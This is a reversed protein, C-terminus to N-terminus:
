RRIAPHLRIRTGPRAQSIRAVDAECVVAIVPYGGTPPHNALHVIPQGSAPVQVSGLHIGETPLQRDTAHDLRAGLLRTAIRDTDGGVTWLTASLLQRAEATFWDHRPGWSFQCDLVANPSCTETFVDSPVAHDGYSNGIPLRDGPKLPNPGLGSLTDSSRSSLVAPTDIGGAFALYNRLGFLPQGTRLVQGARALQWRNRCIAVNDLWAPTAAGTFAIGADTEFKVTLGGMLFEIGAASEANGVLRNALGFSPLDAAGAHPVGLHGFGPRGFDQITAQSGSTVIEIM